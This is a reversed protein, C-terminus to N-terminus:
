PARWGACPPEDPCKVRGGITLVKASFNLLDKYLTDLPYTTKEPHSKRMNNLHETPLEQLWTSDSFREDFSRGQKRGIKVSTVSIGFPPDTIIADIIEERGSYANNSFDM